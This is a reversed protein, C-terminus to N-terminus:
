PPHADRGGSENNSGSRCLVATAVLRLPASPQLHGRIVRIGAFPFGPDSRRASGFDPACRRRAPLLVRVPVRFPPLFRFVHWRASAPYGASPLGFPSMLPLSPPLAYLIERPPASARLPPVPSNLGSVQLKFPWSPANAGSVQSPQPSGDRGQTSPLRHRRSTSGVSRLSAQVGQIERRSQPEAPSYKRLNAGNAPSNEKTKM